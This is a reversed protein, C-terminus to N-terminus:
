PLRLGVKRLLRGLEILPLGILATPDTTEIREFLTIGLGEAKFSGACDLPQEAVVYRRIEAADLRRFVVRTLDCNTHLVHRTARADVVCVATHFEVIRGSCTALQACAANVTGPKGFVVGELEAVQDSGIVIAGSNTKAVDEAKAFALRLALAKPSEETTRTEDVRPACVRFTTSLRSLLEQRYRSTSALVLDVDGLSAAAASTM